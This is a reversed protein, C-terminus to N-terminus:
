RTLGEAYDSLLDILTELDGIERLFQNRMAIATNLYGQAADEETLYYSRSDRDKNHLSFTEGVFKWTQANIKEITRPRPEVKGDKVRPLFWVVDGPELNLWQDRTIM